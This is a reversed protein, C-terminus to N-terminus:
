RRLGPSAARRRQRPAPPADDLVVRFRAREMALRRDEQQEASVLHDGPDLAVPLAVRFRGSGDVRVRERIVEGDLRLRVPVAPAFGAGHVSLAGRPRVRPVGTGMDKAVLRLSPRRSPRFPLDTTSTIVGMLVRGDLVLGRIPPRERRSRGTAVYTNPIAVPV